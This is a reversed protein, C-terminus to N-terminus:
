GGGGGGGGGGQVGIGEWYVFRKERVIAGGAGLRNM